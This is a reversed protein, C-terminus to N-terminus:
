ECDHDIIAGRDELTAIQEIIDPDACDLPNGTAIIEDGEGIGSNAILPSLDDVRNYTLRLETLAELGALPGLDSVQNRYLNLEELASLRALPSLDDISNEGVQLTSLEFLESLPM